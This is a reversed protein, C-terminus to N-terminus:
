SHNQKPLTVSPRASVAWMLTVNEQRQDFRGEFSQKHEISILYEIEVPVVFWDVIIAHATSGVEATCCSGKMADDLSRRTVM